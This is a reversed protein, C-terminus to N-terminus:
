LHIFIAPHILAYHIVNGTHTTLAIHYLRHAQCFLMLGRSDCKYVAM